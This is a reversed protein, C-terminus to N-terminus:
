KGRPIRPASITSPQVQSAGGQHDTRRSTIGNTEAYPEGDTKGIVYIRKRPAGAAASIGETHESKTLVCLNEGWATACKCLQGAQELSLPMDAWYLALNKTGPPRASGVIGAVM